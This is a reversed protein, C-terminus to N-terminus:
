NTTYIVIPSRVTHIGDFWELSASLMNEVREGTITVIFSQTENLSGFSLINPEVKINCESTKTIKSKYTSSSLGVNTVTRSFEVEFPEGKGVQATMTPYNLDKYTSPLIGSCTSNDGFIKRLISSDYNVGCLMKIYDYTLTEYVLGPNTAKVPDLHGVGYSFEADGWMTSTSNMKWATTMLASKIASPSWRPKLSKVYAAAGAVHPCAMSTGSLISYHVHRPDTSYGSPSGKPSFAALIDVGPAVIDPKLIDPIIRNPGRSSFSAVIPATLDPIGESKHINAQPMKTSNIYSEVREFQERNIVSALVPVVTSFDYADDTECISGLAEAENALIMGSYRNCLVIKGKVRDRDLCGYACSKARDEDCSKSADKGYVVPFNTGNLKFSNVANGSLTKGNQLVIKSIIKRNITSAGVSFLWPATSTVFGSRRYGSNGASNITLIGKETAHFSGIAVSDETLTRPTQPGLSVTIIDVGDAIADDFSALVDEDKCGLNSCVCYVAIRAAPVGGRAIGKAIGYYSANEVINGAATSATHSGHGVFDRASDVLSYYRAGIIKKNCTFNRGADCGGKWKKPIAGLGHDSFSESEPWIGTDLVGVIIDSEFSLNRHVNQPFGMFDWSATTHLKLTKSPFIWVVDDHTAM